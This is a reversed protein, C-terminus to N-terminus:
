ECSVAVWATEDEIPRPLQERLWHCVDAPDCEPAVSCIEWRLADSNEVPVPRFTLPMRKSSSNTNLLHGLKRVVRWAIPSSTDLDFQLWWTQSLTEGSDFNTLCPIQQLLSVLRERARRSSATCSRRSEVIQTAIARLLTEPTPSDVTLTAGRLSPAWPKDFRAM